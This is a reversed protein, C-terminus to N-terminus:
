EGDVTAAAMDETGDSSNLGPVSCGYVRPALQNCELLYESPDRAGRDTKPCITPALRVRACIRSRTVALIFLLAVQVKRGDRLMEPAEAAPARALRLFSVPAASESGLDSLRVLAAQGDPLHAQSDLTQLETTACPIVPADARWRAPQAPVSFLRFREASPYFLVWKGRGSEFQEPQSLPRLSVEITLWTRPNYIEELLDSAVSSDVARLGRQAWNDLIQIVFPGGLDVEVRQLTTQDSLTGRERAVEPAYLAPMETAFSAARELLSRGHVM